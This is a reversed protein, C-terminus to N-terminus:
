PLSAAYVDNPYCVGGSRHVYDRVADFSMGNLAALAGPCYASWCFMLLNDDDKPPYIVSEENVLSLFHETWPCKREPHGYKEYILEPERLAQELVDFPLHERRCAFSRTSAWTRGGFSPDAVAVPSDKSPYSVFRHSDLHGLWRSASDRVFAACDQDFHVIMEGRAAFLATLYNIDNHKHFEAYDRYYECHKHIIVRDCLSRAERLMNDSMPEHEDVFLVTEFDYGRLFQQKNRIGQTILDGSSVGNFMTEVRTNQPRTDCNIVLSIKM